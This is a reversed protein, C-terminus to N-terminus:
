EFHALLKRCLLKLFMLYCVSQHQASLESKLAYMARYVRSRWMTVISM